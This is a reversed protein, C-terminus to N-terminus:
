FLDLISVFSHCVTFGGYILYPWFVDLTRCTRVFDPLLAKLTADAMLGRRLAEYMERDASLDGTARATLLNEMMRAREIPSALIESEDIM